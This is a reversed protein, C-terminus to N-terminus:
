QELWMEVPGSSVVGPLLAALSPVSFRPQATVTVRVKGVAVGADVGIHVRAAPISTLGNKVKNISQLLDSQAAQYTLWIEGQKLGSLRANLQAVKAADDGGVAVTRALEYAAENVTLRDFGWLGFEIIVFVFFFLLSAAIAFEVTSQGQRKRLLEM